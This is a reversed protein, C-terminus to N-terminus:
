EVRDPKGRRPIEGPRNLDLAIALILAATWAGDFGLLVRRLEDDEDSERGESM